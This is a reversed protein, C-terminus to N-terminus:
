RAASRGLLLLLEALAHRQAPPAGRRGAQLQDIARLVRPVLHPQGFAALILDPQHELMEPPQHLLQLPHPDSKQFQTRQLRALEAMQRRLFHSRKRLVAALRAAGHRYRSSSLVLRVM